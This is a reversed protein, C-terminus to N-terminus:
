CIILLFYMRSGACKKIHVALCFFVKDTQPVKLRESRQNPSTIYAVRERERERSSGAESYLIRCKEEKNSVYDACAYTRSYAKTLNPPIQKFWMEHKGLLIIRTTYM